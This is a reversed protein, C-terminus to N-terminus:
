KEHETSRRTQAPMTSPTAQQSPVCLALVAMSTRYADGARMEQGSGDPWVGQDNQASLLADRLKPYGTEWYEGGLQKYARSVYYIGYFYFGQRPNTLPHDLLYDGGRLAEPSNHHDGTLELALVGTGTRPANADRNGAQYTFGGGLEKPVACRRVFERGAELADNPIPAGCRSAGRLAELQWGTVSIDSDESRQSYRWGGTHPMSKPKGRPKQADLILKAGLAVAKEIRAKRADDVLSCSEALMATSIGHEYMGANGNNASLLGDSKQQSLVYDIAKNISEGYPGQGPTHGSALFAMVALSPVSTSIGQGAPWTGDPNQNKALWDLAKDVAAQVKPPVPKDNGAEARAISPSPLPGTRPGGPLGLLSGAALAAALLRHLPPKLRRRTPSGVPAAALAAWVSVPSRSVKDMREKAPFDSINMKSSGRQAQSM